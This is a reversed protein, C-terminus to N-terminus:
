ELIQDQLKQNLENQIKHSEQLQAVKKLLTQYEEPSPTVQQDQSHRTISDTPKRIEPSASKTRTPPLDVSDNVFNDLKGVDEGEKNDNVLKSEAAAKERLKAQFGARFKALIQQSEARLEKTRVSTTRNMQLILDNKSLLDSQETKKQNPSQQTKQKNLSVLADALSKRRQMKQNCPRKQGKPTKSPSESSKVEGQVPSSTSSEISSTDDPESHSEHSAHHGSCEESGM